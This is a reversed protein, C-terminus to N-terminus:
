QYQGSLSVIRDARGEVSVESPLPHFKLHTSERVMVMGVLLPSKNACIKATRVGCGLHHLTDSLNRSHRPKSFVLLQLCGVFEPQVRCSVPSDRTELYPM